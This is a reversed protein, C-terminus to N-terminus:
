KEFIALFEEATEIIRCAEMPTLVNGVNNLPVNEGLSSLVTWGIESLRKNSHIDNENIEESFLLNEECLKTLKNLLLRAYPYCFGNMVGGDVVQQQLMQQKMGQGM